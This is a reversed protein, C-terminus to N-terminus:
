KSKWELDITNTQINSIPEKSLSQNNHKAVRLNPPSIFFHMNEWSPHIDLYQSLNWNLYAFVLFSDWIWWQLSTGKWPLPLSVKIVMLLHCWNTMSVLIDNQKLKLIAQLACPSSSSCWNSQDTLFFFWHLKKGNLFHSHSLVTQTSKDSCSNM